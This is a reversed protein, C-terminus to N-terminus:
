YRAKRGFPINLKKMRARLTNPNIGLLEAAGGAGHVKGRSSKLAEVIHNRQMEDLQAIKEVKEPAPLAAAQKSVLNFDLFELPAGNSVILAREIINQLERVNGPWDYDMLKDMAHPSVAPIKRLNLERSKREIFYQMLSAIDEKRHRLPPIHIPFVNLRYWLDERFRGAKVMQELNRNTAAIVRVDVNITESNGLREIQKEQLVRLFKVQADLTLEAIEDLFITGGDAREFRGKKVTLAGTFAGKEHGFLESDLLTDPIAGCQVRIIPRDQRPSLMHIINAIVEKGTGTEGLLLVPSQLPAVQRVKEMVPKLGFDIGILQIGAINEFEQRMTMNEESLMDKLRVTEQFRRANSMAMAIPEKVLNILEAHQMTFADAQRSSMLLVGIEQGRIFLDVVMNSAFPFMEYVIKRI